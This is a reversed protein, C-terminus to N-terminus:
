AGYVAAKRETANQMEDMIIDALARVDQGPAGYITINVGGLDTHNTTNNTLPQVMARNGMMTLLEPGAEGVIASGQSLIGGKALYPISPIYPISLGFHGGGLWKPMTFSISNLGGILSNIAGVAGNLLGIIGNLPAKVMNVLSNFLGGFINVVGQWAQKWNGTFVGKIFNLVGQFIQKIANWTNEVNKMFANIIDGLGPGFIETWDTKFVGQLWSDLGLLIGEILDCAGTIVGTIRSWVGSVIQQVGSWAQEWNGTFIGQIFDIVGNLIQYVGDWIGKLLSFFGNLVNGLVPGFIETWDTAFVGQLWENFGALWAKIEEGKTVILVLVAILAAIGAIALVVPNAALFSLASSIASIGSIVSQVFEVIKLATLALGIAGIVGIVIEKNEILFSVVNSVADFFNQVYGVITDMDIGATADLIAQLIGNIGEQVATLVPQVRESLESAKKTFELQANNADVIDKNNSYWADGVDSLGQDAMAQLVLNTRDAQTEADQLALNFFDEASSAEQVAKNWEENEETNEKLMVGFTEGEKSGWNLVDAFTGTVQGARITENISEALGDIPISDGYKAWAGVASSILSNIDKQSAGIAQLNATTTAASQDDGLARYLQSFAESTEEASYGAAESSTELTGMIKRYEKTEENLDKIGSVIQKIGEVLIDAKLHDAFSSASDGAEELADDADKAADEVDEIPKEDIKKVESATESAANGLQKLASEGKSQAIEDQLSSAAKEAKRLDAETAVIERQLADYQAQTAKGEAFQQQVQKEAAKLADLKQKTQEVSDALLRQKQELLTVNGPDLKLLREVDRLQKQTTSIEKNVGSLAKSLATTDGGIEITIGKIRDAM